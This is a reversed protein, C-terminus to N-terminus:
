FKKFEEQERNQKRRREFWDNLVISGAVTTNLCRTNGSMPIHVTKDANDIVTKPAGMSENGTVFVPNTPYEFSKKHISDSEDSYEVCVISQNRSKITNVFDEYSEYHHVAMHKEGGLSVESVIQSESGQVIHIQNLGFSEATRILASENRPNGLHGILIGSRM